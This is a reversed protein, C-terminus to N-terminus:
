RLSPAIRRLFTTVARVKPDRHFEPHTVLWHDNAALDDSVPVLTRDAMMRPLVALGAGARAAAALTHSSNTALVIRSGALVPQFWAASQLAHWAPLYVLLDLGRSHTDIRPPRRTRPAYLGTSLRALKVAVLGQQHPRPTRIALEAEGRALDTPPIGTILELELDPYRARLVPLRPALWVSALEDLLALRVRGALSHTQARVRGGLAVAGRETDEALLRAREGASTLRYGGATRHFLPAGLDRELRAMRRAVTSHEVGLARAAAAVRGARAVALFVRLDDWDM